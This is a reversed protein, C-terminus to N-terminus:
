SIRSTQEMPASTLCLPGIFGGAEQVKGTEGELASPVILEYLRRLLDSAEDLKIGPSKGNTGQANTVLKQLEAAISDSTVIGEETEYEQQRMLLFQREYYHAAENIAAHSAWLAQRREPDAGRPVVLKLRITRTAM